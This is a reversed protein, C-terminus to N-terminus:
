HPQMQAVIEAKRAPTLLNKEVLVSLGQETEPDEYSLFAAGLLRDYMLKVRSDTMAAEVVSLQEASTFLDLKENGYFRPWTPAISAKHKDWLKILDNEDPKTAAEYSWSAVFADGVQGSSDVPMGVWFKEGHPGINPYERQLAFVAQDHTIM